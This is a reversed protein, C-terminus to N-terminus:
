CGRCPGFTAASSDAPPAVTSVAARMDAIDFSDACLATALTDVARIEAEEAIRPADATERIAEATVAEREAILAAPPMMPRTTASVRIAKLADSLPAAM